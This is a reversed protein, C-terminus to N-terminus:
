FKKLKLKRFEGTTAYTTIGLPISMEIEGPRMSLKKGDLTINIEPDIEQLDSQAFLHVPKLIAPLFRFFCISKTILNNLKM